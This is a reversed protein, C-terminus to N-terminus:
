HGGGHGMGGMDGMGPDDHHAVGHHSVGHMDPAVPGALHGVGYSVAFAAVLLLLFGVLVAYPSSLSPASLRPASLRPASPRPASLASRRGPSPTVSHDM